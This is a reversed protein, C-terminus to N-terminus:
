KKKVKGKPHSKGSRSRGSSSKTKHKSLNKDKKFGKEKKSKHKKRSDAAPAEEVRDPDYLILDIKGALPEVALLQVSLVDGIQYVKRSVDGTMRHKVNDYHFYERGLKRVHILGEVFVEHLGVFLGFSAVHSVTGMFVDGIRAQLYQCKLAQVVERTADDARRETHSCHEGMELLETHLAEKEAKSIKKSKLCAKIARHVLLDPYRRIPSTFHLYGLYALGFHGINDPSYMAQSLSRLLAMQLMDQNPLNQIKTVVANYDQPTPTKGGKLQLGYEALMARLDTLKDNTPGEHIRYLAPYNNKKLFEASAVNAALMCEEIIKHAVTRHRPVISRIRGEEDFLIQTEVTEFAIAGRLQRAQELVHYLAELNELPGVLTSHKERLAKNGGLLATVETYTLRAKSHMVAEYFKADKLTGTASIQMECIVCLRDVLPKLSCLGNSLQEPLMPVVKDPFYVSNGRKIAEKDLPLGHKVYHSVDAIAVFLRYKGGTQPECFVADDFDKADEGDITVLPLDRLDVRGKIDQANVTEQIHECQRVVEPPWETPIDYTRLAIDTFIGSQQPDGLIEVIEGTWKEENSDQRDLAVVVINGEKATRSGRVLTIPAHSQDLPLVTPPETDTVFKGIVKPQIAEVIEVLAGFAREDQDYRNINVVIKDGDYLGKAENAYLYVLEGGDDPLVMVQGKVDFCVVGAVSEIFEGSLFGLGRQLLQCDRVMASLRHQLAEKQARDTIKFKEILQEASIPRKRSDIVSLIYERSPIPNEYNRAEREYYPDVIKSKVM